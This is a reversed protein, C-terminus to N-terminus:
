DVMVRAVAWARDSTIKGDKQRKAHLVLLEKEDRWQPGCENLAMLSKCAKLDLDRDCRHMVATMLEHHLILNTVSPYTTAGSPPAVGTFPISCPHHRSAITISTIYIQHKM